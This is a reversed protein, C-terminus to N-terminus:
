PVNGRGVEIELITEPKHGLAEAILRQREATM